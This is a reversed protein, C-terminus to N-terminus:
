IHPNHKLLIGDNQVLVKQGVQYDYDIKGKNEQATNLDTLGQRHEGTKKWDSIFLIDFLM